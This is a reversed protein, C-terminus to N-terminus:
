DPVNLLSSGDYGTGANERALRDERELEWQKIAAAYRLADIYIRAM